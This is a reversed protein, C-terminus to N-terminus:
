TRGSDSFHRACNHSKSSVDVLLSASHICVSLEATCESVGLDAGAPTQIPSFEPVSQGLPGAQLNSIQRKLQRVELRRDELSVNGSEWLQELKAQREHAQPIPIKILQM